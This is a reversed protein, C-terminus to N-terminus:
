EQIKYIKEFNNIVDILESIYNQENKNNKLDKQLSEFKEEIGKLYAFEKEKEYFIEKDKRFYKICNLYDSEFISIINNNGYEYLKKIAMRNYNKPTHKYRGSIDESFIDKVKGTLLERNTSLKIDATKKQNIILLKELKYEKGNIPIYLSEKENIKAIEKNIKKFLSDKFLVKAKRIRNDQAYKTHNGKTESNKRKRGCMKEGRNSLSNKRRKQTKNPKNRNEESCPIEIQIIPESQLKNLSIENKSQPQSYNLAIQDKSEPKLGNEFYCNNSSTEPKPLNFVGQNESYELDFSVLSDIDSNIGCSYETM